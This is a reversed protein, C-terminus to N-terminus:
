KTFKQLFYGFALLVGAMVLTDLGGIDGMVQGEAAYAPATMLAASALVTFIGGLRNMLLEEENVLTEYLM